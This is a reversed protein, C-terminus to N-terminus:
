RPRPADRRRAADCRAFEPDTFRSGAAVYDVAMQTADAGSCNQASRSRRFASCVARDSTPTAGTRKRSTRRRSARGRGRHRADRRHGAWQRCTRCGAM